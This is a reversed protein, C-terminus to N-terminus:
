FYVESSQIEIRECKPQAHHDGVVARRRLRGVLVRDSNVVPAGLTEYRDFYEALEDLAASDLVPVAPQSLTSLQTSRDAILVDAIEVGGVLRQNRDVLMIRQPLEGREARNARFDDLFDGITASPACAFEEPAMLGGAVGFAIRHGDALTRALLSDDREWRERREWRREDEERAHSEWQVQPGTILKRVEGAAGPEMQALIASADERDLDALLDAGQDSDLEEVIDAAQPADIQEILTAAHVDPLDEILDAANEPSVLQMLKAQEEEDLRTFARLRATPELENVLEDLSAADGQDTLTQLQKWPQEEEKEAEDPAM